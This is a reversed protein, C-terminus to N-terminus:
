DIRLTLKDPDFTQETAKDVAATTASSDVGPKNRAYRADPPQSAATKQDIVDLRALEQERQRVKIKANVADMEEKLPAQAKSVMMVPSGGLFKDIRVLDKSGHEDRIQVSVVGSSLKPVTYGTVDKEVVPPCHECTITTVSPGDGHLPQLTVISSAFAPYGALVLLSGFLLARM